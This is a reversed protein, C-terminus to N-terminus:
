EKETQIYIQAQQEVREESDVRNEYIILLAEGLKREEKSVERYGRKYHWGYGWRFNSSLAPSGGMRVGILMVEATIKADRQDVCTRLDLDAKLREEYTGGLWYARDHEICCGLWRTPDWLFGDPWMSCGDSLFPDLRIKDAKSYLENRLEQYEVKEPDLNQLLSIPDQSMTPASQLTNDTSEQTSCSVFALFSLIMVLQKM